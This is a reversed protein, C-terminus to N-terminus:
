CQGGTQARLALLHLGGLERLTDRGMSVRSFPDDKAAAQLGPRNDITLLTVLPAPAWWRRQIRVLVSRRVVGGSRLSLFGIQCRFVEGSVRVVERVAGITFRAREQESRAAELVRRITLRVRGARRASRRAVARQILRAGKVRLMKIRRMLRMLIVPIVRLLAGPGRPEVPYSSFFMCHHRSRPHRHPRPIEAQTAITTM